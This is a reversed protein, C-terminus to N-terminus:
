SRRHRYSRDTSETQGSRSHRSNANHWHLDPKM